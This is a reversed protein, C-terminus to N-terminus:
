LRKLAQAVIRRRERIYRRIIDPEGEFEEYTWRRDSDQRVYSAIAAHMRRAVPMLSSERFPGRLAQRLMRKYRCRFERHELLRRTLANYGRVDVLRSSVRRGYCNRGWTGEYDWPVLRYKGSKRHRYVAFNQEFGDYNGTLVAGVLWKLYNNTDLHSKLFLRARSGRYKELGRMFAAFRAKETEGGLRHEYGSLVSSKPRGTEPDRLGFGAGDSVAYFLSRIGIGRRRFFDPEVGEIELYVGLPRGNLVLRVHKTRPSPLGIKELFWFSLANRILSPDDYEANYHITQRNHVVEYSRKPYDRTHGGRYRVLIPFTRGNATISAPVYRNDRWLNREMEEREWEGITLARVPIHM